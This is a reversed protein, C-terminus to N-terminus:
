RESSEIQDVVFAGQLRWRQSQVRVQRITNTVPLAQHSILM